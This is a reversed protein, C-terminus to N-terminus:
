PCFNAKLAASCIEIAQISAFIIGPLLLATLRLSVKLLLRITDAGSRQESLFDFHRSLDTM